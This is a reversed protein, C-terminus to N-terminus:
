LDDINDPVLETNIHDLIGNTKIDDGFFGWCSDVEEYHDHGKDCEERKMVKFGYVDGTLFQDFTEVEAELVKSVRDLVEPTIEGYEKLIRHTPCYIYGVQGSDWRCSFSSTSMTIGGHEYIYLPLCVWDEKANLWDQLDEENEFVEERVDLDDIIETIGLDCAMHQLCELNSDMSMDGLTYRRHVCLMTGLNDWQRPSEPYEDNYIELVHDDLLEIRKVLYSMIRLKYNNDSIYM